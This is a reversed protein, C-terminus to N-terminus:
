GDGNDIAPDLPALPTAGNMINVTYQYSVRDSNRNHMKFMKGNAQPGVKTFQGGSDAKLAIGDGPFSYNGSNPDSSAISWIIHQNQGTGMKIPDPTVGTIVGNAINVTAQKDASQMSM